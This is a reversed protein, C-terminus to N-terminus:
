EKKGETIYIAAQYSVIKGLSSRLIGPMSSGTQMNKDGVKLDANSSTCAILKGNIDFFGLNYAIHKPVDSLNTIKPSAMIVFNGFFESARVSFVLQIDSNKLDIICLKGEDFADAEQITCKGSKVITGPGALVMTSVMFTLILITMKKMM